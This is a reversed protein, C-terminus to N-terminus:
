RHPKKEGLERNLLACAEEAQAHPVFFYDHELGAIVNCPVKHQALVASVKATIGVAHLSTPTLLQIGRCLFAVKSAKAPSNVEILYSTGSPANIQAFFPTNPDYIKTYGYLSPMLCFNFPNDM